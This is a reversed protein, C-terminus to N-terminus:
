ASGKTLLQYHRSPLKLRCSTTTPPKTLTANYTTELTSSQAHTTLDTVPPSGALPDGQTKVINGASALELPSM